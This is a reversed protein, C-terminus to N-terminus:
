KLEKLSLMAVLSFPLPALLLLLLLLLLLPSPFIISQSSTKSGRGFSLGAMSVFSNLHYQLRLFQIQTWSLYM